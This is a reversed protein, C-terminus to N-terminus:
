QYLSGDKTLGWVSGDLAVQVATILDDSANLGTIQQWVSSHYFHIQYTQGCGVGWLNDATGSPARALPPADPL